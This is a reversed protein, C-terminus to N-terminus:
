RAGRGLLNRARFFYRLRHAFPQDTRIALRDIGARKCAAELAATEVWARRGHTVFEHGTEAERARVFGVGRVGAEAPDQLHLLVCDHGHALRKLGPLARPDHMDSLVIVVARAKLSAGLEALKRGVTTPEDVRYRRLEHMWQLIRERSLSPEVRFDRGGGGLVGVPSVRDLAAYAIGAALHLAVAYKSRRASTVTMSASTDIVLWIPLSKPTEYEKIHVRGTRATVRWDICRVPDGPVYRRSQVFEVGPGLFPSKDTGYALNDALRRVAILFQRSDLRDVTDLLFERM